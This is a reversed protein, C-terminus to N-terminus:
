SGGTGASDVLFCVAYDFMATSLVYRRIVNEIYYKNGDITFKDYRKVSINSLTNTTATGTAGGLPAYTGVSSTGFFWKGTLDGLTQSIAWYSGTGLNVISNGTYTGGHPIYTGVITAGGVWCDADNGLSSSIVYGGAPTDYWIWYAGDTRVYASSGIMPPYVGSLVYDGSCDPSTTGTITVTYYNTFAYIWNVGNTYSYQGNYLADQKYYGVLNPNITGTVQLYNVPESIPVMLYCDGVQTLGEKDFIYRCDEKFYIVDIDFPLAFTDVESGTMPDISKSNAEYSITRKFDTLIEQFDRDGSICTSAM